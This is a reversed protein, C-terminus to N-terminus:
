HSSVGKVLKLTKMWGVRGGEGEKFLDKVGLPGREEHFGPAEDYGGRAVVIDGRREQL